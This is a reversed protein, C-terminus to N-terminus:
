ATEKPAPPIQVAQTELTSSGPPLDNPDTTKNSLDKGTLLTSGIAALASVLNTGSVLAAIRLSPDNRSEIFLFITLITATILLGFAITNSSPKALTM